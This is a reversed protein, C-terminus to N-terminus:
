WWFESIESLLNRHEIDKYYLVIVKIYIVSACVYVHRGDNVWKFIDECSYRKFTAFSPKNKGVTVENEILPVDANNNWLFANM